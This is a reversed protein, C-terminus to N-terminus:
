SGKPKFAITTTVEGFVEEIDGWWYLENQNFSSEGFSRKFFRDGVQFVVYGRNRDSEYGEGDEDRERRKLDVVTAVSGTTPLPEVTHKSGVGNFVMLDWNKSTYM